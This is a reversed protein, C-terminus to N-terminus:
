MHVSCRLFHATMGKLITVDPLTVASAPQATREALEVASAVVPRDDKSIGIRKMIVEIRSSESDDTTDARREEVRAHYWRRIIEQEAAARCVADDSICHGAMNVGM